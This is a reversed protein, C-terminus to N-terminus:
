GTARPAGSAARTQARIAPWVTRRWASAGADWTVVEGGRLAFWQPASPMTRVRERLGALDAPWLPDALMYRQMREIYNGLPHLERENDGNRIQAAFTIYRAAM